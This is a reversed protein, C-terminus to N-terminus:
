QKTIIQMNVDSANEFFEEFLSRSFDRSEDDDMELLQKLIPTDIQIASM